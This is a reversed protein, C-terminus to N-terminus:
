SGDSSDLGVCMVVPPHVEGMIGLYISGGKNLLELQEPTPKWQSVMCNTGDGLTEDRIHLNEYEEQETALLRTAGAIKEAKEMYIQTPM